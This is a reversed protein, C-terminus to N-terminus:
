DTKREWYKDAAEKLYKRITDDSVSIRNEVLDAMIQAVTESKKAEPDFGYQEIAMGLIIKLLSGRESTKLDESVPELREAPAGETSGYLETIARRMAHPVEVKLRDAWELFDVPRMPDYLEFGAVARYVLRERKSYKQGFQSARVNGQDILRATVIDPNRNLSLAIAEDPRWRALQAWELHDPRAKPANYSRCLELFRENIPRYAGNMAKLTEIQVRKASVTRALEDDSMSLLSARYAEPTGQDPYESDPPSPVIPDRPNARITRGPPFSLEVLFEVPDSQWQPLQNTM